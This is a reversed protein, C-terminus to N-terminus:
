VNFLIDYFVLLHINDPYDIDEDAALIKKVYLFCLIPISCALPTNFSLGIPVNLGYLYNLYDGTLHKILIFLITLFIFLLLKNSNFHLHGAIFSLRLFLIISLLWSLDLIFHFFTDFM